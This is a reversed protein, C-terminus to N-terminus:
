IWGRDGARKRRRGGFIPDQSGPVGIQGNKDGGKKAETRHATNRGKGRGTQRQPMWKKGLHLTGGMKNECQGIAPIRSVERKGKQSLKGGENKLGSKWMDHFSANFTCEERRLSSLIGAGKGKEASPRTKM